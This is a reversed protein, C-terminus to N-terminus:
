PKVEGGSSGGVGRQPQTASQHLAKPRADTFLSGQARSRRLAVSCAPNLWVVETRKRAGDALATCTHREWDPYLEGDYLSCPYGSLVVMGRVGHLVAALERHDAETMDYAYTANGRDMNRTAHPYPPDAYFLTTPADHQAIVESSPRNEIVVSALRATFSALHRPYNAWDHAPTTGSRNSNARFGTLFEDNTAASGFGAFSRLVTRRANEVPDTDPDFRSALFEDRAFPTLTLCEHLRAAQEPDRLVRFVGVVTAWRDNYVEAYSRPKQMLVSAAGGFAEVYTRHPPFFSLIWPALRWKGGHYRLVPRTPAAIPAAATM